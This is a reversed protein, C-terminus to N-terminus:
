TDRKPYNSSNIQLHPICLFTERFQTTNSINLNQSSKQIRWDSVSM